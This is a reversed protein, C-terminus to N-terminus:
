SCVAVVFSRTKDEQDKERGNKVPLTKEGRQRCPEDQNRDVEM